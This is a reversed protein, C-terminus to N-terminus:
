VRRILTDLSIKELKVCENKGYQNCLFSFNKGESYKISSFDKANDACTSRGVVRYWKMLKVNGPVFSGRSSILKSLLEFLQTNTSKASMPGCEIEIAPCKLYKTVPGTDLKKENEWVITNKCAMNAALMISRTNSKTIITCIGCDSIAGHIDIVFRYQSSILILEAARRSEYKDSNV